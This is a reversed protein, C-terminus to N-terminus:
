LQHLVSESSIVAQAIDKVKKRQRRSEKQLRVVAEKETFHYHSILIGKAKEILKTEALKEKLESIRQKETLDRFLGQIVQKGLITTVNTSIRVPVLRGDKSIIEAELESARREQVATRFMQEYFDTQAPPHLESQHMGIIEKRPRGLLEEAQRNADLIRHTETDAIFIADHANEFLVKYREESEQLAKLAIKQHTIDRCIALTGTLNGQNDKLLTLSTLTPFLTGDKRIHEIEGRWSGHTDIQKKASMAQDSHKDSHLVQDVKMGMMEDPSYGHMAAYARNVYTFEREPNIVAIGDISQEVAVTLGKQEEDTKLRKITEKELAKVRELLEEYTPQKDM